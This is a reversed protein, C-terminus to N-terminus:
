SSKSNIFPSHYGRVCMAAVGYRILCSDPLNIFLDGDPSVRVECEVHVRVCVYVCACVCLCACVCVYLCGEM